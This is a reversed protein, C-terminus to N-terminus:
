IESSAILQEFHKVYTILLRRCFWKLKDLITIFKACFIPKGKEISFIFRDFSFLLIIISAGPQPLLECFLASFQM